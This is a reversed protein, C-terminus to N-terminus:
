ITRKEDDQGTRGAIQEYVADLRQVSFKRDHVLHVAREDETHRVRKRAEEAASILFHADYARNNHFFVSM